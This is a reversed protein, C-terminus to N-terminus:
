KGEVVLRASGFGANILKALVTDAEAVSAYPGSRVRTLLVNNASLVSAAATAEYGKLNEVQKAANEPNAFAGVQVYISTKVLPLTGSAPEIDALAPITASTEPPPLATEMRAIEHSPIPAMQIPDPKAAEEATQVMAMTVPNEAPLDEAMVDARAVPQITEAQVGLPPLNAQALGQNGRAGGVYHHPGGIAEVLVPATGSRVVDLSQAAAYSLDIVRGRVFPGRDNVKLVISKKNELNTVRVISPLPLTKHAATYAYMNYCEGNASSKGHFDKGYWSAVGQERYGLSSPMPTYTIGDVRYPNGVKLDGESKCGGQVYMKKFLHSGVQIETCASLFLFVILLTTLSAKGRPRALTMGAFAPMESTPLTPISSLNRDYDRGAFQTAIRAESFLFSTIQKCM